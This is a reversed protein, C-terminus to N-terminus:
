LIKLLKQLVDDSIKAFGLAIYADNLETLPAYSEIIGSKTSHGKANLIEYFIHIHAKYDGDDHIVQLSLLSIKLMKDFKSVGLPPISIEFCQEQATLLLMNKLSERPQNIWKKDSLANIEQTKADFIYINTSDFPATASIDFLAIKRMKTCKKHAKTFTAPNYLHFYTTHPMPSAIKVDVCGGLIGLSIAYILCKYINKM